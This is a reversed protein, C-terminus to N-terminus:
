KPKGFMMRYHALLEANSKLIRERRETQRQIIDENRAADWLPRNAFVSRRRNLYVPYFWALSQDELRRTETLDFLDFGAQDLMRHISHFDGLDAECVLINTDRLFTAGGRLASEEAGQIDMKLLYPPALPVHQSLADLTIARVRTKGTRLENVRSWYRDGEPRISNWYPHAATTIEIEGVVDTVAAIVYAGGMVESIEKLSPEYVANADINVLTAAPFLHFHSLGFHGDACGIDVM